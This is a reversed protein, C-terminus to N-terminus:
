RPLGEGSQGLTRDTAAPRAALALPSLGDWAMTRRAQALALQRAMPSRWWRRRLLGSAVRGLSFREARRQPATREFQALKQEALSRAVDAITTGRARALTVVQAVKASFDRRVVGDIDEASFGRSSMDAALVTGGNSVFDPVCIRDSDFLVREAAPTVAINAGPVVLRARVEHVNRLSVSWPRACPVLAEVDLLLLSGPAIRQAEPFQAVCRDGHAARAQLLRTVDLGAPSHVAGEATSVAVIRAGEAALLAAVQSGIRGFGEIAVTCGSIDKQQCRRVARLSEVVTVAAYHASELARGSPATSMHAAGCIVRLDEPTTGLDEGPLYAQCRILPALARGFAAMVEARHTAVLEASVAIGAKAGGSLLGLFGCKLTMARALCAVEDVTVDAALRVGGVSRGDLLRDVVVWGLRGLVPDAVEVVMQPRLDAVTPTPDPLVSGPDATM